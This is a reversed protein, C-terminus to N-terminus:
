AFRVEPCDSSQPLGPIGERNIPPAGTGLRIGHPRCLAGASAGQSLPDGTRSITVQSSACFYKTSGVKPPATTDPRLLTKVLVTSKVPVENKVEGRRREGRM